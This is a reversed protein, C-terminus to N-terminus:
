GIGEQKLKSDMIAMAIPRQKNFYHVTSMWCTSAFAGLAAKTRIKFVTRISTWGSAIELSKGQSPLRSRVSKVTEMCPFKLPLLSVTFCPSIDQREKQSSINM